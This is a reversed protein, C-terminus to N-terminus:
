WWGGDFWYRWRVPRNGDENPSCWNLLVRQFAKVLDGSKPFGDTTPLARWLNNVCAVSMWIRAVVKVKGDNDDDDGDDKSWGALWGCVIIARVRVKKRGQASPSSSFLAPAFSRSCPFTGSHVCFKSRIKRYPSEYVVRDSSFQHQNGSGRRRVLMSRCESLLSSAPSPSSRFM